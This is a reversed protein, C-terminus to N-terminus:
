GARSGAMELLAPVLVREAFLEAGPLDLHLGDPRSYTGESRAADLIQGLDLLVVGPSEAALERVIDNYVALRAPDDMDGILGSPDDIAPATTLALLTGRARAEAIRTRYILRLDDQVEPDLISAWTGDPREHDAMVSGHDIIVALDARVGTDDLGVRCPADFSFEGLYGYSLRYRRWAVLEDILASCGSTTRDVVALERTADARERLGAAIQTATSDGLVVVVPPVVIKVTTTTPVATTSPIEVAEESAAVSPTGSASSPPPESPLPAPRESDPNEQIAAAVVPADAFWDPLEDAFGAEVLFSDEEIAASAVGLGVAAVLSTGLLVLLPRSVVRARRIPDEIMRYSVEALLLTVAIVLPGNWDTLEILPWHILYIAYSRMGVWRLLPDAMARALIGSGLCAAILGVWALSILAPFGRTVIAESEGVTATAVAGVVLALPWVIGIRAVSPRRRIAIALAGGALIEAIRVPTALYADTTGWWLVHAAAAVVFGGGVVAAPRRTLGILLPITLYFQEEIALSWMHGLPRATQDFIAAYGGADAMQNWNALNLVAWFGDRTVSDRITADTTASWVVVVLITVLAAPLLRRVRRRYFRGYDVGGDALDDVLLGIVLFGSLTFFLGVGLWGGPLLDPWLHYVVVAIVAVGRLGDLAPIHRRSQPAPPADSRVTTRNRDGPAPEAM